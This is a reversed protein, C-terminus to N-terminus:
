WMGKWDSANLLGMEFSAVSSWASEAGDQDWIRVRWWVQQGSRLRSGGYEVQTCADGEAGEVKGSDWLDSEGPRSGAIVQYARQRAGRRRDEMQWFLRPRHADIGIPNVSYECKLNVPAKVVAM